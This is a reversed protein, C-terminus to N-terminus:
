LQQVTSGCNMMRDGHYPNRIEEKTSLWDGDGDNVMPCRQHYLTDRQHGLRQVMAIMTESLTEYAGRQEEIDTSGTIIDSMELLTMNLIGVDARLSADIDTQQFSQVADYFLESNSAARETDSAVLADTLALYEELVSDFREAATDELATEASEEQMDPGAEEHASEEPMEGPPHENGDDKCGHFIFVLLMLSVFKM